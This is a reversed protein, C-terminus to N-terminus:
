DEHHEEDEPKSGCFEESCEGNHHVIEVLPEMWMVMDGLYAPPAFADAVLEEVREMAGKPSVKPDWIVVRLAVRGEEDDPYSM